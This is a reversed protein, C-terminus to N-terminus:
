ANQKNEFIQSAQGLAAGVGWRAGGWRACANCVGQSLMGHTGATPEPGKHARQSENSAGKLRCRGAQGRSVSARRSCALPLHPLPSPPEAAHRLIGRRNLSALFGCGRRGLHVGVARSRETVSSVSPKPPCYKSCESRRRACLLPAPMEAPPGIAGVDPTGDSAPNTISCPRTADAAVSTNTTTASAVDSGCSGERAGAATCAVAALGGGDCDASAASGESAPRAGGEGGSRGRGAM